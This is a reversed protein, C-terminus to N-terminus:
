LGSILPAGPLTLAGPVIVQLGKKLCKPLSLQDWSSIPQGWALLYRNHAFTPSKLCSWLWSKSPVPGGSPLKPHSISAGQIGGQWCMGRSSRLKPSVPKTPQPNPLTQLQTKTATSGHKVKPLNSGRRAEGTPCTQETSILPCRAKNLEPKEWWTKKPHSLPAPRRERSRNDRHQAMPAPAPCAPLVWTQRPEVAELHTCSINCPLSKKCCTVFLLTGMQFGLGRM